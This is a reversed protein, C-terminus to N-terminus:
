KKKPKAYFHSLWREAQKQNYWVKKANASGRLEKGNKGRKRANFTYDGFYQDPYKSAKVNIKARPLLKGSVTKDRSRQTLELKEGGVLRKYIKKAAVESTRKAPLKGGTRKGTKKSKKRLTGKSGMSAFAAKKARKPLAKFRKKATGKKKTPM